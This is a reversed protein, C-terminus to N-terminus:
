AINLNGEDQITVVALRHLQTYPILEVVPIYLEDHNLVFKHVEKIMHMMAGIRYRSGIYTAYELFASKIIDPATGPDSLLTNMFHDIQTCIGGSISLGSIAPVSSDRLVDFFAAIIKTTRKMRRIVSPPPLYSDTYVM